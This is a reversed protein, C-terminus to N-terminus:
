PVPQVDLRDRGTPLAMRLEMTQHHRDAVAATLLLGLAPRTLQVFAGPLDDLVCGVADPDEVGVVQRRVDIRGHGGHQAGCGLLHVAAFEEVEHVVHGLGLCRNQHRPSPGADLLREAEREQM